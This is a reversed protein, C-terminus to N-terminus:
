HVEKGTRVFASLPAITDQEYVFPEETYNILIQKEDQGNEYTNKIVGNELVKRKVWRYGAVQSLAENVQSYVEDVLGEYQDFETSYLHASPTSALHYSPEMSLIFSPSLNYDIMRLIDPQTYFSFNAYPAYMEMTGNLVMQLFPVTDTEFVHQSTTVP